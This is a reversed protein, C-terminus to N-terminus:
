IIHIYMYTVTTSHECQLIPFWFIIKFIDRQSPFNQITSKFTKWLVIHQSWDLFQWNCYPLVLAAQYHLQFFVLNANVDLENWHPLTHIFLILQINEVGLFHGALQKSDFSISKGWPSKPGQLSGNSLVARSKWNSIVYVSVSLRGKGQRLANSRSSPIVHCKSGDRMVSHIEKKSGLHEQLLNMFLQHKEQITSCTSSVIKLNTSPKQKAHQEVIGLPRLIWSSSPWNSFGYICIRM